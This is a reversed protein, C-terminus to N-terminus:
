AEALAFSVQAHRIEDHMATTADALLAPPAGLAGLDLVFRAFSAVSAHEALAAATWHEALARRSAATLRDVHPLQEAEAWDDRLAPSAVRARDDILLPRGKGCGEEFMTVVYHCADGMAEACLVDGFGYWCSGCCNADNWQALAQAQCEENCVCQGSADPELWLEWELWDDSPFCMQPPPGSDVSGEGSGVSPDTSTGTMGSTETVTTPGEDGSGDGGMDDNPGDLTRQACGAPVLALPSLGLAAVIRLTLGDVVRYAM